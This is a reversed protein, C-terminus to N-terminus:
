DNHKRRKRVAALFDAVLQDVDVFEYNRHCHM